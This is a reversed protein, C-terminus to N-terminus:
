GPREPVTAVEGVPMALVLLTTTRKVLGPSPPCVLVDLSDTAPLGLGPSEAGLQAAIDSALINTSTGILTLTGGLMSAFSLPMLLKSPSTRGNHALDAIVPVLIAVVPTNNVVGSVPGTVGVTAILQKRRDEGAFTAMKRGLLQVVGTRNIGTSLILMALVTITAPNAFGSIGERTSIQTWPELVMLLVMLLIATVDIPFRESAFLVLALLILAFVVLMDGTVPTATVGQVPLTPVSPSM